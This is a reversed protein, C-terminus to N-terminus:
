NVIQLALQKYDLHTAAFESNARKLQDLGAQNEVVKKLVAPLESADKFLLDNDGVLWRHSPLDQALIVCGYGMAMQTTVTQGFPQLFCDAGALVTRLKDPTQWGLDLIRPDSKILPLCVACVADTMRGAIVLKLNPSPNACFAQLAAELKKTHDLKGTQTIVIDTELFGNRARFDARRYAVTEPAEITCGLPYMRTKERPSEYFEIAFDLSEVTICLVEHIQDVCRRFIPKYFRKHLIERSLWTRASNNFDEHCDVFLKVRPNNRTYAAVSLLGWATLGHFLICDPQLTELYERLGKQARIKTSIWGFIKWTYPLRTIKAGCQLQTTGVKAEVIHKQEGYTTSAAIVTVTHGLRVHETVLENEQYTLGDTFPGCICIHVINM